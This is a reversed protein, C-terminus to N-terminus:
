CIIEPTEPKIITTKPQIISTTDDEEYDTVVYDFDREQLALYQVGDVNIRPLMYEANSDNGVVDQRISNNNNDLGRNSKLGSFYYKPDIHVYDGEKVERVSGGVAVVKQVDSVTGKTAIILGNDYVDDQLVDATTLVGTFIPKVKKIKM